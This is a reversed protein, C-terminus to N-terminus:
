PVNIGDIGYVPINYFLNLLTVLLFFAYNNAVIFKILILIAYFM